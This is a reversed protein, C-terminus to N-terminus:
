ALFAATRKVGRPAIAVGPRGGPAAWRADFTVGVNDFLRTAAGLGFWTM